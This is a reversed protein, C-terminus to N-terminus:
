RRDATLKAVAHFVRSVTADNEAVPQTWMAHLLRLKPDIILSERDGLFLATHRGLPLAAFPQTNISGWPTCGTAGITCTAHVFRGVVGVNDYYALHLTGTVPDLAINPVLHISCSNGIARRVWTKGADHTAAIVIDWQADRGGRVYVIYLWKRRTDVAISPNAFYTPLREDRGSIVLPATFTAGDKSSVYEITQQASGYSGDDNGHLTVIHLVGTDDVIANGITGALPTVTSVFTQGGDHSTRVRLGHDGDGYMVFLSRGVALLPHGLESGDDAQVRTPSTWTAGDTSTALAISGAAGNPAAVGPLRPNTISGAAAVGLLAPSTISGAAGNPAAVGPLGLSAIAETDRWAAYITKGDRTLVADRGAAAFPKVNAPDSAVVLGTTTSFMAVFPLVASPETGTGVLESDGFAKDHVDTGPCQVPVIAALNPISCAHQDCVYGEDARCDADSSCAALCM